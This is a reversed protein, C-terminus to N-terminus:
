EGCQTWRHNETISETQWSLTARVRLQKEPRHLPTFRRLPQGLGVGQTVFLVQGNGRGKWAMSYHQGSQEVFFFFIM